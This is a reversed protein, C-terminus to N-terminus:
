GAWAASMNLEGADEEEEEAEEELQLGLLLLVRLEGTWGNDSTSGAAPAGRPAPLPTRVSRAARKATGSSSCRAAGACAGDDGLELGGRRLGAERAHGRAGGGGGCWVGGRVPGGVAGRAGGGGGGGGGRQGRFEVVDWHVDVGGGGRLAHGYGRACPAFEVVEEAGEGDRPVRMPPPVRDVHVCLRKRRRRQDAKGRARGGRGARGEPVVRLQGSSGSEPEGDGRSSEVRLVLPGAGGTVGEGRM